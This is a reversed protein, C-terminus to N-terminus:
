EEKMTLAAAASRAKDVDGHSYIGLMVQPTHGFYNSATTVDWGAAIARTVALHRIDHFTGNAGVKKAHKNFFETVTRARPPTAGADPGFIWGDPEVAGFVEIKRAMHTKLTDIARPIPIVRRKGTKTTSLHQGGKGPTWSREIVLTEQRWDVDSWRLGCLEGRRAGTWAALTILAALNPDDEDASAIIALVDDESLAGRNTEPEAVTKTGTAPNKALWDYEVGLELIAKTIARITNVTSPALGSAQIDTLMGEIQATSLKTLPTDGIAPLIRTRLWQEYMEITSRKRGLRRAQRLYEDALVSFKANTGVKKQEAVELLLQNLAARAERKGGQVSRTVQRPAGTIPDRGSYVRLRWRGPSRENRTM